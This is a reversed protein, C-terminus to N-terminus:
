RCPDLSHEHQRELERELKLYNEQRQGNLQEALPADFPALQAFTPWTTAVSVGVLVGCILGLFFKM